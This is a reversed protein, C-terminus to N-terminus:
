PQATFQSYTITVKILGCVSQENFHYCLAGWLEAWKMVSQFGLQLTNTPASLGTVWVHGYRPGLQNFHFQIESYSKRKTYSERQM